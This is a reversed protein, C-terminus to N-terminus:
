KERYVRVWDVLMTQPYRTTADVKGPFDGGMNLDLLLYEPANFPWTQGAKLDSARLTGFVQAPDDVYFQILDKSWLMGYVHFGAWGEPRKARVGIGENAYGPGHLTAWTETPDKAGIYEMIDIEGCAPWGVKAIDNGLMWFAPWAGQNGEGAPVAIRAEIRGYQTSFLIRSDDATATKLRGGTIGNPADKAARVVIALHGQGDLAVNPQAPDCGHDRQGFLCNYSQAGDPPLGQSLTWKSAEPASGAPGEFEDNWLMQWQIAAKTSSAVQTASNGPPAQVPQQAQPLQQAFLQDGHASVASGAICACLLASRVLTVGRVRCAIQWLNGTLM